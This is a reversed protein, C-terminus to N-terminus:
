PVSYYEQLFVESDNIIQWDEEDAVLEGVNVLEEGIEDAQIKDILFDKGYRNYIECFRM